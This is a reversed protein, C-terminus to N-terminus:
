LDSCCVGPMILRDIDRMLDEWKDPKNPAESPILEKLYGPKVDPQPRREGLSKRYKVVYDIMDKGMKRCTEEDM